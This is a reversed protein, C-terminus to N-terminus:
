FSHAIGVGQQSLKDATGSSASFSGSQFYARTRKSLAYTVQLQSSKYKSEVGGDSVTGTSTSYGVNTAGFPVGVAYTTSKVSDGALAAKAGLYSLTAFGANYSIGTASKKLPSTTSAAAVTNADSAASALETPTNFQLATNKTTDTGYGVTFPGTTYSIASGSGDGAVTTGVSNTGGKKIALQINLGTMLSPLTYGITQNGGGIAVTGMTAWGMGVGQSVGNPDTGAAVYSFMPAYQTGLQVNGFAGSLGVWGERNAGGFTAGNNLIQQEMTFSAKLGGGLDENGKFNIFTEGLANSAGSGGITTTKVASNLKTSSYSQDINGGITVDAMAGTVAAMAAVAVLTKKM